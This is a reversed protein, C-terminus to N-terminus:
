IYAEAIWDGIFHIVVVVILAIALHEAIVKWTSGPEDKAIAYSLIALMCLGWVVSVMIATSLDFVFIPVIFTLAFLFKALFTAFTSEWIEKNTHVNEAEESVHIGLADSCADAIAITLIGGLVVLKSGSFSHLGVMLGLTTIIASTLGFCLGKKMSDKM